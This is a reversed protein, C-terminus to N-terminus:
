KNDRIYQKAQALTTHWSVWGGMFVNYTGDIERNDHIEFGYYTM